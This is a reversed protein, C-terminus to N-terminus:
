PPTRLTISPTSKTTCGPSFTPRTPSVPQPLVLVIFAMWMLLAGHDALLTQPTSSGLLDVIDGVFKLLSVEILAGILGTVLVAALGPWVQRIYHVYFRWLGEPPTSAAPIKLPDILREFYSLM